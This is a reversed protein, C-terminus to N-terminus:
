QSDISKNLDTARWLKASAKARAIRLVLTESFDRM